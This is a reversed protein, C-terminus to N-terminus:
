NVEQTIKFIMGLTLSFALLGIIIKIVYTFLGGCVTGSTEAGNRKFPSFVVSFIDNSEIHNNIYRISKRFLGVDDQDNPEEPNRPGAWRFPLRRM